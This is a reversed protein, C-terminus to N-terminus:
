SSATAWSQWLEESTATSEVIHSLQSLSQVERNKGFKVMVGFREGEDVLNLQLGIENAISQETGDHWVVHWGAAEHHLLEGEMYVEPSREACFRQYDVQDVITAWNERETDSLMNAEAKSYLALFKRIIERDLNFDSESWSSINIGWGKLRLVGDYLLAEAMLDSELALDQGGHSFFRRGTNFEQPQDFNQKNELSVIAPRDPREIEHIACADIDPSPNQPILIM